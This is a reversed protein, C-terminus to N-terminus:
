EPFSSVPYLRPGGAPATTAINGQAIHATRFMVRVGPDFYKELSEVFGIDIDKNRSRRLHAKLWGVQRFVRLVTGQPEFVLHEALNDTPRLRVKHWEKLKWAALRSRQALPDESDQRVKQSQAPSPFCSEVFKGFSQQEGWSQPVFDSVKHGEPLHQKLACDIMLSAQLLARIGHERVNTAVDTAYLCSFDAKTQSTNGILYDFFRVVEAHSSYAPRAVNVVYSGPPGRFLSEYYKFFVAPTEPKEAAENDLFKNAIDQKEAPTPPEMSM